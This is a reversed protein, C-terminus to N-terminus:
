PVAGEGKVEEKRTCRVTTDISLSNMDSEGKKKKKSNQVQKQLLKNKWVTQVNRGAPKIL